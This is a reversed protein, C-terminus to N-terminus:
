FGIRPASRSALREERCYQRLRPMTLPEGELIYDISSKRAVNEIEGGSFDFEEALEMAQQETLQDKFMARWIRAKVDPAPKHFEVKFLFRREFAKDLLGTLNTTAILIGDLNEIEQLIINQMANNMKDVSQEAAEMRKGFLADAENFFLIPKVKSKECIDRYREFVAKINKESEGVWKDRMGAIDIQMIDRGTLRGIQLVTETKGTGPAGYFICAFGQRMGEDALRKQVGAFKEEELLSRLRSIQVDEEPNYYLPKATISAHKKLYSDFNRSLRDVRSRRPKYDRLIETKVHSTLLYREQNAVGDNCEFEILGDYFLSIEGSKLDDLFNFAEFDDDLNGAISNVWLGEGDSDAYQAYDMLIMAFTLKAPSDPMGKLLRCVPLDPNKDALFGIWELIDANSYSNYGLNKSLFTELRDMFQQTTLGDLKEPVFVKNLRLASVVGPALRFGKFYAHGEDCSSRMLWGKGLLVEVEESYTMMTLRSVGLFQGLTRWSEPQGSEILIATVILQMDTLGLTKRLYRLPAASAQRFEDCLESGRALQLVCDLAGVINWKGKKKFKATSFSAYDVRNRPEDQSDKRERRM